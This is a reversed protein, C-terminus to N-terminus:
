VIVSSKMIKNLRWGKINKVVSDGVIPIEKPNTDWNVGKNYTLLKSMIM